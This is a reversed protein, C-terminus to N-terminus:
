IVWQSTHSFACPLKWQRQGKLFSTGHRAAGQCCWVLRGRYLLTLIISTGVRLWVEAQQLKWVLGKTEMRYSMCSGKHIAAGLLEAGPPDQKNKHLILNYKPLSKWKVEYNGFTENYDTFPSIWFYIFLFLSVLYQYHTLEQAPPLNM